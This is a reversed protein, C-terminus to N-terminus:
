QVLLLFFSPHEKQIEQYFLLSTGLTAGALEMLHTGASEIMRAAM